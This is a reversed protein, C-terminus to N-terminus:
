ITTYLYDRRRMRGNCVTGWYDWTCTIFAPIAIYINIKRSSGAGMHAFVLDYEYSTFVLDYENKWFGLGQSLIHFMTLISLLVSSGSIRVLTYIVSQWVKGLPRLFFKLLFKKRWRDMSPFLLERVKWSIVCSPLRFLRWPPLTGFFCISEHCSDGAHRGGIVRFVMVPLNQM